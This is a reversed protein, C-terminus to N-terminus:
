TGALREVIPAFADMDFTTVSSIGFRSRHERLKEALGAASGIFVFPSELLEDPGVEAGYRNALRDALATAERRAHDTVILRGVAPYVNLELRGFHDGATERIWAIREDVTGALCDNIAVRGDPAARPALGVIDAERAAIALIRRGGGGILFPPHPRQVPKPRGDYATIEYHEDRFTFPGDAFVGKLITVGAAMRGIRVGPPDFPQGIAQYEPENWGAGIGIELRGDSLLDLTALEQALVAPHRLDNNLVFTGIRLHGTAAAITALAPIPALQELLHDGLVLVSYGISEARRANAALTAADVIASVDAVFRFPHVGPQRGPGTEEASSM